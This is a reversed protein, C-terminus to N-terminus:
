CNEHYDGNAKILEILKEVAQEEPINKEICEKRKYLSVKGRGAGVYGYDADAMEGPGNVICGMIGIKLGKLHSTAAKIRAITAELDYLTRGCGPCSIYETKSTRVRGAQLIGFATEDVKQVPIDNGQNFLLIGDCLGDIILAGMDAAAKIQLDELNTESYHQFFVVPNQLGQCTLQHVLGRFEGLRNPHNSQAVIVVEPHLRLGAVVEETLAMYTMFLFKQKAPHHHLEVMQKFNFAPYTGETGDWVNADVIYGTNADAKEPLQQGCYIYDPKFQPNSDLNGELRASIVVPLNDGGINGVPQTKRRTPHIYNFDPAEMGPIYPHGARKTVYDVLKRAVPIEAEPAESLSVRITDGLGDCLLAGIGLASKIRGDEGDGAETVGLHLPFAMNEAEMQQALLRVTQVMIVTNSAKISIVVNTFNEAVCIRLFEMCSEVMGEPTDGYRSMIRDSLSGHNVGIRIATHNEKCINLFPVLRERIKQIEQAYEEDTYELKKFTRAADVYNGPNIRVKEAYLAAVDAVNPNFHVDAVLPTDYGQSRLSININKLNEAERVGQTTLRVYEGGAQIIRKAQEVCAETDMTVTNTMSQIRIPYAGGLPTAGVYVENAQRRSYNFYDM